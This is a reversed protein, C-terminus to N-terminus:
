ICSSLYLLYSLSAMWSLSQTSDVFFRVLFTSCSISKTQTRLEVVEAEVEKIIILILIKKKPTPVVNDLVSEADAFLFSSLGM